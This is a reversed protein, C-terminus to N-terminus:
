VSTQIRKIQTSFTLQNFCVLFVRTRERIKRVTYVLDLSHKIGKFVISPVTRQLYTVCSSSRWSWSKKKLAITYEQRTTVHTTTVLARYVKVCTRHASGLDGLFNSHESASIWELLLQIQMFRSWNIFQYCELWETEIQGQTNQVSKRKM